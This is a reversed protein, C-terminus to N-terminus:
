ILVVEVDSGAEIGRDTERVVVWGDAQALMSIMASRGHVVHAVGAEDLRVFVYDERGPESPINEALVARATPRRRPNRLGALLELAPRVFLEFAVLASVPHGPLGFAPKHGAIALVTPKGPKIAVGHVLIGPEGLSAIADATYDRGGVSSGGSLIVADCSDLAQRLVAFLADRTDRVLGFGVPVGGCREVSAAISHSNIDRVQGPGPVDSGAVLEDGSSIIGVRPRAFVTVAVQEPDGVAAILGIDQPRIERGAELMVAGQRMDDGVGVVNESPAVPRELAVISGALVQTNEVMVVADSDEPLM